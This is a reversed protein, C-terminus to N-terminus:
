NGFAIQIRQGLVGEQMKWHRAEIVLNEGIRRGGRILISTILKSGGLYDLIIM